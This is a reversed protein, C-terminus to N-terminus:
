DHSIQFGNLASGSTIVAKAVRGVVCSSAWVHKVKLDGASNRSKHLLCKKEENLGM